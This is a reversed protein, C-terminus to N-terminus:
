RCAQYYFKGERWILRAQRKEMLHQLHAKLTRIAVTQAGQALSPGYIQDRLEAVTYPRQQIFSLIEQERRLRRQKTAEAAARADPLIDGHGPGALLGDNAAVADLTRLYDEMHGDPPGVWVTGIGSLNDGVLLIRDQPIKVHLHGHTHGPAHMVEVTIGALDFAAPPAHVSLPSLGLRRCAPRADVPHIYIPAQWVAALKPLGAVHDIHHHTALLELHAVGIKKLFTSLWNLHEPNDTGVDIVLGRNRNTVLYTNTHDLPPLTPTPFPIQWVHDTVHQPTWAYEAQM